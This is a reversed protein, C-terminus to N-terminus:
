AAISIHLLFDLITFISVDVRIGPRPHTMVPSREQFIYSYFEESNQYWKVSYLQTKRNLVTFPCDLEVDSGYMALSPIKFGTLRVGSIPAALLLWFAM